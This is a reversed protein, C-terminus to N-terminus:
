SVRRTLARDYYDRNKLTRGHWAFPVLSAPFEVLCLLGRRTSVIEGQRVDGGTDARVSEWVEGPQPTPALEMGYHKAVEAGLMGTEDSRFKTAELLKVVCEPPTALQKELEAIRTRLEGSAESARGTEAYAEELQDCLVQVLEALKKADHELCRSLEKAEDFASM